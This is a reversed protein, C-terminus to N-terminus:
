SVRAGRICQCTRLALGDPLPCEERARLVALPAVLARVLSVARRAREDRALLTDIQAREEVEILDLAYEVLRDHM